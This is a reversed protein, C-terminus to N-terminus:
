IPPITQKQKLKPLKMWKQFELSPPENQYLKRRKFELLNNPKGLYEAATVVKHGSEKAKNFVPKARIRWNEARLLHHDLIILPVLTSIRALNELGHNIKEDSVKFGALYLPPGGIILLLPKQSLILKLTQDSIPGQVDPTYMVREDQYTITLMLVWGLASDEEGHFVPDSFKLETEGLHYACGNAAEIRKVFKVASKQFIWGRRRQSLNITKRADKALVVKDQYISQAMETTNWLWVYDRFGIPTYHDFHYHSIVLIDSNEAASIIRERCSKLAKYERPHPILAFRPGLAVGPDILLKLDPTEVLTCMSRVGFSEAALPIVKIKKM